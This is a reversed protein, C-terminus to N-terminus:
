AGSSMRPGPGRGARGHRHADPGQPQERSISEFTELDLMYDTTSVLFADIAEDGTM